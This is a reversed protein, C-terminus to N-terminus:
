KNTFRGGGSEGAPIRPQDDRSLGERLAVAQAKDFRVNNPAVRYRNVHFGQSKMHNLETQDFWKKLQDMSLFGYIFGRRTVFTPQPQRGLGTSLNRKMEAQGRYPGRGEDNEIRFFDVKGDAGVEFRDSVHREWAADNRYKM